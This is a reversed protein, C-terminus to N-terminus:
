RLFQFTTVQFEVTVAAVASRDILLRTNTVDQAVVTKAVPPIRSLYNRYQFDSETDFKERWFFLRSDARKFIREVMDGYWLGLTYAQSDLEQSPTIVQFLLRAAEPNLQDQRSTSLTGTALLCRGNPNRLSGLFCCDDPIAELSIRNNTLAKIRDIAGPQFGKFIRISNELALARLAAAEDDGPYVLNEPNAWPHNAYLDM